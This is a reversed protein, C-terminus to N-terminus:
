VLVLSKTRLAMCACRVGLLYCVFGAAEGKLQVLGDITLWRAATSSTVYFFWARFSGDSPNLTEVAICFVREPSNAINEEGSPYMATVLCDTDDMDDRRQLFGEAIVNDIWMQSEEDQLYDPCPCQDLINFKLCIEHKDRFGLTWKRLKQDMKWEYIQVISFADHGYYGILTASLKCCLSWALIHDPHRIMNAQYMQQGM